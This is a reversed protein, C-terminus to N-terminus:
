FMLLYDQKVGERNYYLNALRFMSESYGVNQYYSIAKIFDQKVGKEMFERMFMM